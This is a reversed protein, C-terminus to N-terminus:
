ERGTGREHTGRDFKAHGTPTYGPRCGLDRRFTRPSHSFRPRVSRGPCCWPSTPAAHLDSASPAVECPSGQGPATRISLADRQGAHVALGPGPKVSSSMGTRPCRGVNSELVHAAARSWRRLTPHVLSRSLHRATIRQSRGGRHPELVPSPRQGATIQPHAHDRRTTASATSSREAPARSTRGASRVDEALVDLEEHQAMLNRHQSVGVRPRM